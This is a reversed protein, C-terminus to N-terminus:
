WFYLIYYLTILQLRFSTCDIELICEDQTISVKCENFLLDGNEGGRTRLLQTEQQEQSDQRRLHWTYTLAYTDKQTQSIEVLM